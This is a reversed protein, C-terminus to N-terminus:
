CEADSSPRKKRGGCRVYFQRKDYSPLFPFPTGDPASPCEPDVTRIVCPFTIMKRRILDQFDIPHVSPFTGNASGLIDAHRDGPRPGLAELYSQSVSCCLCCIKVSIGLHIFMQGVGCCCFASVFAEWQSLCVAANKTHTGTHLKILPREPTRLGRNLPVSLSHLLVM